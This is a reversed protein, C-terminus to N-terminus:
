EADLNAITKVACVGVIVGLTVAATILVKKAQSMKRLSVQKINRIQDISITQPAVHGGQETLVTVFGSGIEQIVADIKAGDAREIRVTAGRKLGALARAVQEQERHRRTGQADQSAQTADVGLTAAAIIAIMVIALVRKM